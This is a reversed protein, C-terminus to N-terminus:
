ISGVSVNVTASIRFIGTGHIGILANAAAYAERRDEATPGFTALVLGTRSDILRFGTTQMPDM